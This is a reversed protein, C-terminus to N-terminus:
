AEADQSAEYVSKRLHDTIINQVEDNDMFKQFLEQNQERRDIFLKTLMSDFELAFNDESNVKASKRLWENELADEKVQDLFLQDADTFETGLAENIREVLRSLEVEEDEQTRSGTDTPVSVTGGSEDLEIKGEKIKELRYYQLALEDDFEVRKAGADRPLEKYLFRGFTYLKELSEDAYPVVRSQFKYFKIFSHLKSRFEDQAEEDRVMFRDLAADTLSSLKGHANETGANEPNFFAEAFQDIEEQTYIRFQNLENELQYIHQPEMREEVTTCEYYPQFADLITERDNIFDLVFTDEKGPHTRNLRSLTQVAQVGSLKKDVYMTHLLPQDFGTQYKEAVVLVQYESSDFKSPLESEKIENMKQETYEIGDDEVTGSFAV